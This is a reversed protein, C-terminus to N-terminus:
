NTSKSDTVAGMATREACWRQAEAISILRRTGLRIERPAQGSNKLEYYFALSIGAAQCFEKLSYALRPPKTPQQPAGRNGPRLLSGPADIFRGVATAAVDPDVPRNPRKAKGDKAM